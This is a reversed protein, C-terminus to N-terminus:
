WSIIFSLLFGAASSYRTEFLRKKYELWLGGRIYAGGGGGRGVRKYGRKFGRISIYLGLVYLCCNVNNTFFLIIFSVSTNGRLLLSM